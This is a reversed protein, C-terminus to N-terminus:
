RSITMNYANIYFPEETIDSLIRYHPVSQPTDTSQNYTYGSFYGLDVAEINIRGSDYIKRIEDLFVFLAEDSSCIDAKYENGRKNKYYSLEMEFTGDKYVHFFAHSDFLKYGDSKLCYRVIIKDDSIKINDLSMNPYLLNIKEMYGDCKKIANEKKLVFNADKELSKFYIYSGYLTITKLGSTVITKEFEETRKINENKDFFINQITILDIDSNEFYLVRMPKSYEPISCKLYVDNRSLVSILAEKNERKLKYDEGFIHNCFFLFLNLFILFIITYNKARNLDM